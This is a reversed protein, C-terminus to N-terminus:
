GYMSPLAASDGRPGCIVYPFGDACCMAGIRAGYRRALAEVGAEWVGNPCVSLADSARCLEYVPDVVEATGKSDCAFGNETPSGDGNDDWYLLAGGVEPMGAAGSEDDLNPSGTGEEKVVLGVLSSLDSALLIGTGAGIGIGGRVLM